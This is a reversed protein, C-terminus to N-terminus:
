WKGPVFEKANVNLEEQGQGSTTSGSETVSPQGGGAAYADPRSIPSAAVHSINNKVPYLDGGSNAPPRHQRPLVPCTKWASNQLPPHAASARPGTTTGLPPFLAANVAPTGSSTTTEDGPHIYLCGETRCKDRFRCQTTKYKAILRDAEAKPPHRKHCGNSPFSCIGVLFPMCPEQSQQFEGKGKPHSYICDPRTCGAGYQCETMKAGNKPAALSVGRHNNVYNKGRPMRQFSNYTV